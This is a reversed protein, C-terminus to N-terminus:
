AGGGQPAGRGMDAVAYPFPQDHHSPAPPASGPPPPPPPTVSTNGLVGCGLTQLVLSPGLPSHPCHTIDSQRDQCQM